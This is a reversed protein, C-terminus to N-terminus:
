GMPVVLGVGYKILSVASDYGTCADAIREKRRTTIRFVQLNGHQATFFTAPKQIKIVYNTKHRKFSSKAQTDVVLM